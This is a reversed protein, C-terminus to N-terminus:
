PMVERSANDLIIRAWGADTLLSSSAARNIQNRLKADLVIALVSPLSYRKPKKSPNTRRKM